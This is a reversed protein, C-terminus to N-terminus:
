SLFSNKEKGKSIKKKDNSINRNYGSSVPISGPCTCRQNM